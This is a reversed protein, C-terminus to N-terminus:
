PESIGTKDKYYEASGTFGAIVDENTAGNAFQGLWYQLGGQDATRGLYHFYDANILDSNNEQSEAIRVAVQTRAQVATQGSAELSALQGNWYSSGTQDPARGLLLQYVANVWAADPSLNPNQKGATAYFEDSAIFGAELQQDTLGNQMQTTWFQLGDADAPRGLLSLYDPKIVFNAYYEPSHDFQLAVSSVASALTGAQQAQDLFNTWYQLGGSDPARDLVDHYVATVFIANPDPAAAISAQASPTATAGGVDSITVAMTFTGSKAYVHSAAVSFTGSAETIASSGRSLTTPTSGDGWNITAAFEGASGNPDADTFTAVTGSFTSGATASVSSATASLPFDAVIDANATGSAGDTDTITVMPTYNGETAYTHSGSVSLGSASSNVTGATTNGDGWAITATFDSANTDGDADTFTAVNGSFTVGQTSTATVGTVSIVPKFLDTLDNASATLSSNSTDGLFGTPTQASVNFLEQMTKLDSSHTYTLTSDYANGKALPSIVIEPLTYQPGSADPEAEDTWIVIMGNNKYANSAMIEPIIMSLFNDGEAIAAQDGTFGKYGDPLANHMDNYLDPTIVNYRGVNGDNLDAQLSPFPVPADLPEYHSVETNSPSLNPQGSTTEGNTAPFFLQGDHKPVFGYDNSGNYPNTYAPSSGGGGGSPVSELPVTWQNQPLPTNTIQGSGNTSLDIDEQYSKWSIGAKQLLDSLNEANVVNNTYPQPGTQTVNAYPDDDSLNGHLGAEAWVYNPESPHVATGNSDVVNQYNSAYSTQAAAPNGPDKAPQILSNIYPAAPNGLLQEPSVSASLGNPESLNHNELLIYFVDGVSALASNALPGGSLMARSELGEVVSRRSRQAIRRRRLSSIIAIKRSRHKRM